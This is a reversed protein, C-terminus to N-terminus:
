LFDEILKKPFGIDAVIIEGCMRPGKGSYFGTKPLGFTVTSRAKFCEGPVDGTTANLGSPVDVSYIEAGSLNAKEAIDAYLGTMAGSFGTGLLADVLLHDSPNELFAALDNVAIGESVTKKFNQLAAGPRVKQEPPAFLLLDGQFRGKLHRAAVFGDGGNNGTGCLVSIGAMRSPDMASLVAEAVAIGAREMLYSQKIGFESRAREDIEAMKEASVPIM